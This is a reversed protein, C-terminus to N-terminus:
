GFEVWFNDVDLEWYAYLVIAIVDTDVMVDVIKCLKIKASVFIM